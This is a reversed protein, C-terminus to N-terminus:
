DAFIRSLVDRASGKEPTRGPEAFKDVDERRLWCAALCAVSAPGLGAVTATVRATAQEWEKRLSGATTMEPGAEILPRVARWRTIGAEILAGTDLNLADHRAQDVALAVLGPEDAIRALGVGALLREADLGMLIVGAETSPADDVSPLTFRSDYPESM